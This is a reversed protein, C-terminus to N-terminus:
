ERCKCSPVPMQGDTRLATQAEEPSTRVRDQSFRDRGHISDILSQQITEEAAMVPVTLAQRHRRM